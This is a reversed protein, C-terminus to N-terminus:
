WHYKCQNLMNVAIPWTVILSIGDTGIHFFEGKTGCALMARKVSQRCIREAIQEGTKDQYCIWERHGYRAKLKAQHLAVSGKILTTTKM